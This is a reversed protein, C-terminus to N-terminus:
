QKAKLGSGAHEFTHSGPDQALDLVQQWAVQWSDQLHLRSSLVLLMQVQISISMRLVKLLLVLTDDNKSNVQRQPISTRM